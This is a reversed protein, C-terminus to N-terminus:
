PHSDSGGPLSALLKIATPDGVTVGSEYEKRALADNGARQAVLGRVVYGKGAGAPTVMLKRTLQLTEEDANAGLNYSCEAARGLAFARDTGNDAAAVFADRAKKWDRAEMYRLAAALKDDGAPKEAVATRKKGMMERWDFQGGAYAFLLVCVAVGMRRVVRFRWHSLCASGGMLISLLLAASLLITM